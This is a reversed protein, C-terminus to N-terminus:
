ENGDSLFAFSQLMPQFYQSSGGSFQDDAAYLAIIYPKAGHVTAYVQVRIRVLPAAPTASPTVSQDSSNDDEMGIIAAGTQWTAGGFTAPSLPGPVREYTRGPVDSFAGLAYEVWVSADNPDAGADAGTWKGPLQVQLRFNQADPSDICDIGPNSRSCTWGLPRQVVFGDAGDVLPAYGLMATPSPTATPPLPTQTPRAREAGAPNHSANLVTPLLALLIVISGITVM